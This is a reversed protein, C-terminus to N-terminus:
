LEWQYEDEDKEEHKMANVRARAEENSRDNQNIKRAAERV